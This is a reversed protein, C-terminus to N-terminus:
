FYRDVSFLFDRVIDGDIIGNFCKPKDLKVGSPLTHTVVM